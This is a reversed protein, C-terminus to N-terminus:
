SEHNWRLQNKDLNWRYEEPSIHVSGGKEMVEFYLKGTQDFFFGPFTLVSLDGDLLTLDNICMNFVNRLRNRLEWSGAFPTGKYYGTKPLERSEDEIGMTQVITCPIALSSLQATLGLALEATKVEPNEQRALHHRVDISSMHVMIEKPEYKKVLEKITESKLAGFLTRGDQREIMYSPDWVSPTHSDGILLKDKKAVHQFVLTSELRRDLRELVDPTFSEKFNPDTSTNKFRGQIIEVLNPLRHRWSYLTGSFNLLEICRIFCKSDLGGFLNLVGHYEAGLDFIIVDFDSLSDKNTLITVDQYGENRLQCALLRAWGGKHSGPKTTINSLLGTIGIKRSTDQIENLDALFSTM